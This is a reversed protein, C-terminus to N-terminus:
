PQLVVEGITGRNELARHAAAAKALPPPGQRGARLAADLLRVGAAAVAIRVQGPAPLPDEAPEHTLTEAPGFAYLRIAHM